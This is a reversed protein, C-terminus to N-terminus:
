FGVRLQASVRDPAFRPEVSFRAGASGRREYITRDRAIMADIGVGIGAGLGGEILVASTVAVADGPNFAAAGVGGLIGGVLLGWLAGNSLPDSHRHRVLLVDRESM